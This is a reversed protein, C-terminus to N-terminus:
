TEAGGDVPDGQGRWPDVDPAVAAAITLLASASERLLQCAYITLVVLVAELVLVAYLVAFLLTM